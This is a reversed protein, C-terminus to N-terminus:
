APVPNSRRLAHSHLSRLLDRVMAYLADMLTSGRSRVKVDGFKDHADATIEVHKGSRKLSIKLVFQGLRDGLRIARKLRAMLQKRHSPKLLVNGADLTIM